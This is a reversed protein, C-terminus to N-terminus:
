ISLLNQYAAKHIQRVRYFNDLKRWSAVRSSLKSEDIIKGWRTKPSSVLWNHIWNATSWALVAVEEQPRDDKKDEKNLGSTNMPNPTLSWRKIICVSHKTYVLRTDASNIDVM